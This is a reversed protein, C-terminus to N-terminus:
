GFAKGDAGIKIYLSIFKDQIETKLKELVNRRNQLFIQEQEKEKALNQLNSDTAAVALKNNILYNAYGNAVDIVDDKVIVCGFPGGHQNDIGKYAEWIAERMYKNMAYSHEKIGSNKYDELFEEYDLYYSPEFRYWVGDPTSNDIPQFYIYGSTKSKGIRIKSGIFLVEVDNKNTM